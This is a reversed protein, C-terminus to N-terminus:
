SAPQTLQQRLGQEDYDEWIEAIRGDEFRFFAMMTVTVARGTPEIGWTEASHTGTFTLRAAARDGSVVVDEITFRLGQFASRWSQVMEMVGADDMPMVRGRFNFRFDDTIREGLRAASGQNWQEEFFARVLQEQESGRSSAASQAGAPATFVGALVLAFLSRRVINM